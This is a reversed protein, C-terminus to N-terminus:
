RPSAVMLMRKLKSGGKAEGSNSKTKVEKVKSLASKGGRGSGPKPPGEFETQVVLGLQARRDDSHTRQHHYSTFHQRPALTASTAYAALLPLPTNPTLPVNGYSNNGDKLPRAPSHNLNLKSPAPSRKTTSPPSIPPSRAAITTSSTQWAQQPQPQPSTNSTPALPSVCQQPQMEYSQSIAEEDSSFSSKKNMDVEGKGYETSPSMARERRYATIPNRSKNVTRGKEPLSKEFEKHAKRIYYRRACWWVTFTLGIGGIVGGIIAGVIGKAAFSSVSVPPAPTLTSSDCLSVVQVYAGFPLVPALHFTPPTSSYQVILYLHSLFSTGLVPVIPPPSATSSNSAAPISSVPSINSANRLESNPITVTLGTSLTISLSGTFSSPLEFTTDYPNTNPTGKTLAAFKSTADDPLTLPFQSTSIYADFPSDNLQGLTTNDANLLSISQVTVKFPTSGDTPSTLPFIPFDYIPETWRGSDHGGLTLSGNAAGGARAYAAGVYFGFSRSSISGQDYLLKLVTSSPGLGLGGSPGFWPSSDSSFNTLVTVPFKPVFTVNPPSPDYYHTFINLTDTGTDSVSVTQFDHTDLSQLSQAEFSQSIGPVFVGHTENRCSQYKTNDCFDTSALYTENDLLSPWMSQNQSQTGIGAFLGYQYNFGGDVVRSHFDVYVPGASCNTAAAHAAFVLSFLALLITAAM